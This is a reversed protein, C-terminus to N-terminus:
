ENEGGGGGSSRKRKRSSESAANLEADAERRGNAAASQGCHCVCWLLSCHVTLPWYWCCSVSHLSRSHTQQGSVKAQSIIAMRRKHGESVAAKRFAKLRQLAAVGGSFDRGRAKGREEDGDEDDRDDARGGGAPAAAPERWEDMQTYGPVNIGWARSLHHQVDRLELKNSHRQRALLAAMSTVSDVFDDALELLLQVVSLWPCLHPATLPQIPSHTHKTLHTLHPPHPTNHTTSVAELEPELKTNPQISNVLDGLRRSTVRPVTSPSSSATTSSTPPASSTSPTITLTPQASSSM